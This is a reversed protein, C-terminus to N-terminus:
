SCRAVATGAEMAWFYPLVTAWSQMRYTSCFSTRGRRFVVVGDRIASFAPTSKSISLASM